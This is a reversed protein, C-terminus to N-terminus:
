RLRDASETAWQFLECLCQPYLGHLGVGNMEHLIEREHQTEVRSSPTFLFSISRGPVAM